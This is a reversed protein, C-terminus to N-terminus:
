GSSTTRDRPEASMIDEEGGSDPGMLSTGRYGPRTDRDLPEASMIDEEGGSDPGMLSTHQNRPM